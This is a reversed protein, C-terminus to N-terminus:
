ELIPEERAKLQFGGLRELHKKLKPTLLFNTHPLISLIFM